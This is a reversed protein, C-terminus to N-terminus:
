LPQPSPPPSPLNENFVLPKYFFALLTVELGYVTRFTTQDLVKQRHHRHYCFAVVKMEWIVDHSCTEQNKRYSGDHYHDVLM